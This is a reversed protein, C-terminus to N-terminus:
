RGEINSESSIVANRLTGVSDLEVEVVDGAKMSSIGSPTGTAIVDGPELTMIRSIYEVLATDDFVRDGTEAKQVECGNLRTTVSAPAIPSIFPGTPAFTDFGKARTWDPDNKQLDRATVDNFGTFGFIADAGDSARRARKGMILASEGEYDVRRSMAPLVIDDGHGIIASSPKTFIIPESPTDWNMEQIHSRYNLGICIIKAPKDIPALVRLDEIRYTKGTIKARDLIADMMRSTDMELVSFGDTRGVFEKGGSRFRGLLEVQGSM